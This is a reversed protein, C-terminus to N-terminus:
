LKGLLAEIQKSKNLTYLHVGPAGGAKLEKILQAALNVGYEEVKKHDEAIKLLDAHIGKPITAHCMSTFREIQAVNRIPMIGPVIPATVGAVQAAAVFDFYVKSDFFLQTLIVEAGAAVKEKLYAIDDAMTAADPHKEPYAAVAISFDGRQKIHKVLDRACSFGDPHPTFNPQNKPADGRLALVNHINRSKFDNLVEDIEAKSHGVCTLHAVAPLDLQNAIYGTIERTLSRTGGGAGYTVTMFDPQLKSLRSVLDFTDQLTEESRPPFFEFSLTWKKQKYLESFRMTQCALMTM